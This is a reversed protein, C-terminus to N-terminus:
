KVPILNLIEKIPICQKESDYSRGNMLISKAVQVMAPYAARLLHNAYIVIKAGAKVLEDEFVKNYSTPVVVIPVQNQLKNFQDLFDFIEDPEERRSHIMVADSGAEIYSQARRIADKIGKDLILSEIRSIIMFAETIRANKGAQIKVCFDEITDQTQKVETGFLSNQKLGIKDEIIVASVGLRELSRVKFGFLEPRGGTDCDFILPKTTVEFIDNITIMRSSIDVTEIDPKGRATSDTLSSSWMCDFEKPIGEVVVRLNEVIMGTLGNHVELVRIFPKADILRRLSKLRIDPTTGIEKIAQNLITSSIGKTYPIEVLKGGWEKLVEIVKHRVSAQIGTQWDDGHVVYDPKINRLNDTYDLTKQPIVRQVGKINEVVTNRQEYNMCPLRKYSAVAADTLLGVTVQGIKVAESIINIHGPHIMDAVMCVYVVCKGKQM